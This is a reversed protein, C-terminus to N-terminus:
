GLSLVDCNRCHELKTRDELLSRRVARMSEGHWISRLTEHEVNGMTTKGLPDNCCLSVCGDPRIILQKFPLVCSASNLKVISNRNPADGGRSTLIEHPSRLVITVRKKLEKHTECYERIEECPKILELTESYNDIILEDLDMMLQEFIDITMLTANTFLHMRANPVRKRVLHHRQIIKKDLLPENNSFLALKGCYDMESLEDIIKEFLVDSMIKLERSDRKRSVPCFDCIGNCRSITEIEVHDFLQQENWLKVAMENILEIKQKDNVRDNWEEETLNREEYEYPNYILEDTPYYSYKSTLYFSYNNIGAKMLQDAIDEQSKSAILIPKQGGYKIYHELDYVKVGCVETGYLTPNNDIFFEVENQHEHLAQKGFRGAGFIIM